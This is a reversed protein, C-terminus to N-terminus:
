LRARVMLHWGLAKELARFVEPPMAAFWPQKEYQYKVYKDINWTFIFDQQIDVRSFDKLLQRAEAPTYTFAIPRGRQAEPQDLGAEIMIYKWSNRAYLMIALDLDASMLKSAAHM